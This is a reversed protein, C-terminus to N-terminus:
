LHLQLGSESLKGGHGNVEVVFGNRSWLWLPTHIDIPCWKTNEFVQYWLSSVINRIEPKNLDEKEILGLLLSAQIVHTDPAVNIEERDKFKVDTYQEIVYLWYNMIKTGSLYPFKKKNSNMYSKINAVSLQNDYLFKKVSGGFEDYFTQCLTMWIQPHKNPQLAVKYMLLNDRLKELNMNVVKQPNFVDCTKVDNYTLNASEWLKYSNRQYNLAMPLTFYLFNEESDKKLNPNSDEPMIDGGLVGKKYLEILTEASKFVDSRVSENLIKYTNM